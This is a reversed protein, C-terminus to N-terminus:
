QTGVHNVHARIMLLKTKRKASEYSANYHMYSGPLPPSAYKITTTDKVTINCTCGKTIVSIPYFDKGIM